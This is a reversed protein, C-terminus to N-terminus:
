PKTSSVSSQEPEPRADDTRPADPNDEPETVTSNHSVVELTYLHQIPHDVTLTCGNKSQHDDSTKGMLVKFYM